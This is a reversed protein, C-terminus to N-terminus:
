DPSPYHYHLTNLYRTVDVVDDESWGLRSIIQWRRVEAQLGAWDAAVRKDRWHIQVDHCAICHTAYLLEGRTADRMPPVEAIAPNGCLIFFVILISRQHMDSGEFAIGDQVLYVEALPSCLIRAPIASHEM